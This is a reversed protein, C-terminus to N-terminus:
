KGKLLLVIFIVITILILLFLWNRKCFHFAMFTNKVIPPVWSGEHQHDIITNEKVTCAKDFGSCPEFFSSELVTIRDLHKNVFKTFAGPGTSNYICTVDTGYSSCDPNISDLLEKLLPNGQTVLITANNIFLNGSNKSVIFDKTHFEPLTDFGKIAMADTDVSVGGYVYLILYRAFDVRQHLLTFSNYKDTYECAKKAILNRIGKDDWQMFTWGPNNVQVSNINPLYKDPLQDWGQLWIQHVTHPIM